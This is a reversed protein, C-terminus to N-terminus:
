KEELQKNILAKIKTSSTQETYPFFVMAAGSKELFAKTALWDPNEQYDSGSFQCDFKYRRYAEKTSGDTFPIAVAEDVYKCARVIEIREEFPIYPEVKKFTRVGEDSVVGVILYNCQEKARKFMNLHGIHFLDFVGAIYGVNYKKPISERKMSENTRDFKMEVPFSAYADFIGIYKAGYQKLQVLAGTYEKVCIIVKYEEPELSKIEEVSKIPIGKIEHGWKTDDNEIIMEVPYEDLFRDIFRRAYNGAGFVILKKSGVNKFLDKFITEYEYSSFNIRQRNSSMITFDPQYKEYFASLEKKQKLEAIFDISMQQWKGLKKDMNYRKWFFAKPLISEMMKPFAYIIDIARYLIVNAPFDEYCFEQDFFVYEGSVHFCNLPVMDIYGRKLYVGEYPDTMLCEVHESSGLILERFKDVEKVFAEVDKQLLDLFHTLGTEAKIFPTVYKDEVLEGRVVSINHSALDDINEKLQVLRKQGELNIARKEVVGNKLITTIMAQEKGRDLSMTVHNINSFDNNLSCEIFYSNAMVHFMGNKILSTYLGQERLFVSDPHRYIPFYRMALEENPEFDEAYILQPYDLNPMVSYFKNKRWGADILLSNIEDRAFVRGTIYSRDTKGLSSYNEIGDFSRNTFPDRDGCFYRVGLRNDTALLFTGVSSLMKRFGALLVSIESCVELVEIAVIYDFYSEHERIFDVEMCQSASSVTVEIKQIELYQKLVEINSEEKRTVLLMNTNKKFDYWALIGKTMEFLIEKENM